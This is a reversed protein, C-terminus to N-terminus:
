FKYRRLVFAILLLLIFIIIISIRFSILRGLIYVFSSFLTLGLLISFVTKDGEALKFSNLILYFPLSVLVIGLVVRAGAIGFLVFSFILAALVIISAFAILEKEEAKLM